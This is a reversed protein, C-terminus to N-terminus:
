LAISREILVAAPAFAERWADLYRADGFAPVVTKAGIRRVLAANDSLRPHANWRISRARGSEVLRQAPTGPAYYGTFVFAVGSGSEWQAALKAAEGESLDARGALLIGRPGAAAPAERGIRALADAVGPRLSDREISALRALSARLDAGIGPLAGTTAAVHFAIEPARGDAPVPLLAGSASFV